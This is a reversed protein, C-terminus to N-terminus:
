CKDGEVPKILFLQKFMDLIYEPDAGKLYTLFFIRLIKTSTESITEKLDLFFLERHIEGLISWFLLFAYNILIQSMKHLLVTNILIYVRKSKQNFVTTQVFGIKGWSKGGEFMTLFVFKRLIETSAESITM